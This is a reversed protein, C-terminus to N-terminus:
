EDAANIPKGPSGKPGQDPAKQGSAAPAAGPKNGERFLKDMKTKDEKTLDSQPENCGAVFLALLLCGIAIPLKM